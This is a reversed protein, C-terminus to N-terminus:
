QFIIRTILSTLSFDIEKILLYIKKRENCAASSFIIFFLHSCIHFSQASPKAKQRTGHMHITEANKNGKKEVRFVVGFWCSFSCFFVVSPSFKLSLYSCVFLFPVGFVQLLFETHALRVQAQYM